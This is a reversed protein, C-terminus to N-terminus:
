KGIRVREEKQSRPMGSPLRFEAVYMLHEKVTFTGLMKDDQMVYGAIRKFNKNVPRGNVLIQGGIKGVNKRGALVDLFSTKGAGLPNHIIVDLRVPHDWYQRLKDQFQLEPSEM